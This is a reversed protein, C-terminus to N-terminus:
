EQFFFVLYQWFLLTYCIFPLFVISVAGISVIRDFHHIYVHVFVRFLRTLIKKCLPLFTKPFPVDILFLFTNNHNNNLFINYYVRQCLFFIKMILKLKLGIWLYHFMSLHQYNHQNKTSIKILGCINLNQVVVWRQAHLIQVITASLVM